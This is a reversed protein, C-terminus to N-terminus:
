VPLQAILDSYSPDCPNTVGEEHKFMVSHRCKGPPIKQYAQSFALGKKMDLATYVRMTTDGNRFQHSCTAQLLSIFDGNDDEVPTFKVFKFDTFLAYQDM